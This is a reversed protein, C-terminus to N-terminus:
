YKVHMLWCIATISKYDNWMNKPADHKIWLCWEAAKRGSFKTIGFCNFNTETLDTQIKAHCLKGPTQGEITLAPIGHHQDEVCRVTFACGNCKWQFSPYHCCYMPTVPWFHYDSFRPQKRMSIGPIALIGSPHLDPPFLPFSTEGPRRRWGVQCRCSQKKQLPSGFHAFGQDM